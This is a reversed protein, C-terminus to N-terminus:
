LTSPLQLVPLAGEKSMEFRQIHDRFEGKEDSWEVPQLFRTPTLVDRWAQMSNAEKADMVRTVRRASLDSTLRDMGVVAQVQALIRDIRDELQQHRFEEVAPCNVFLHLNWWWYWDSPTAGGGEESDPEPLPEETAAVESLTHLDGPGDETDPPPPPPPLSAPSPPTQPTSPPPPTSAASAVSSASSASSSREPSSQSVSSVTSISSRKRRRPRPRQSRPHTIARPHTQPAASPIIGVRVQNYCSNCIRNDSVSEYPYRSPLLVGEVKKGKWPALSYGQRKDHRFTDRWQQHTHSAGCCACVGRYFPRKSPMPSAKFVWLM